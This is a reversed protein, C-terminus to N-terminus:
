LYVLDFTCFKFFIYFESSYKSNHYRKNNRQLTKHSYWGLVWIAGHIEHIPLTRYWPFLPNTELDVM